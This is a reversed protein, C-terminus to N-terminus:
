VSRQFPNDYMLNETVEMGGRVEATFFDEAIQFGLVTNVQLDTTISKKETTMKNKNKTTKNNKENTLKLSLKSMKYEVIDAIAIPSTTM